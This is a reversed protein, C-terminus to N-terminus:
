RSRVRYFRVSHEKWNEDDILVSGGTLSGSYLPLWDTQPLREAAEVLIPINATGTVALWFRAPEAGHVRLLPNWLV